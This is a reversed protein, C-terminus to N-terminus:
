EEEDEDEADDEDSDDRDGEMEMVDMLDNELADSIKNISESLDNDIKVIRSMVEIQHDDGAFLPMINVVMLDRARKRLKKLNKLTTKTENLILGLEKDSSNM